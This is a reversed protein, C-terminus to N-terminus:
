AARAGRRRAGVALGGLAGFLLLGSAPLPVAAFAVPEDSLVLDYQASAVSGAFSLRVPGRFTDYRLPDLSKLTAGSVDDNLLEATVSLDGMLSLLASWPGALGLRAPSFSVESSSGYYSEGTDYDYGHTEKGIEVGWGSATSVLFDGISVTYEIQEFHYYMVCGPCVPDFEFFEQYPGADIEVKMGVLGLDPGDGRVDAVYYTASDATTALGLGAVAAVALAKM